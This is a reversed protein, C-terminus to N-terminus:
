ALVSMYVIGAVAALMIALCLLAEHRAFIERVGVAGNQRRAYMFLPVGIAYVVCAVMLYSLGAAVVLWLAYITAGVAVFLARPRSARTDPWNSKRICLKWLYCCCLLYCPMAMVSTISILTQWVSGETFCVVVFLFQVVGATAVFARKPTGKADVRACGKPFIGDRAAFLPMQGLMVMWVLWSTLLSVVIGILVLLGGWEGVMRYMLSALAPQATDAVADHGLAGVPLLAVLMYLVLTCVYGIGTAKSVDRPSRANGSVVVAGEIGIFIWLTVLMTDTVQSAVDALNVGGPDDAYGWFNGTFTSWKFLAAAAVVFALVPVLKAMTGVVTLATSDKAGKCAIACMIWTIGSCLALAPLNNGHGFVGDFFFNLTRCMLVGYAVMAFCNCIWYGYAVLFGVFRGFGREAYTYLGNELEPKLRTLLMFTAAIFAMGIGTVVWALLQPGVAAHRAMDQPLEFIGGGVMASIVIAVLGLLGVGQASKDKDM